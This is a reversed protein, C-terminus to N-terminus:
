GLVNEFRHTNGAVEEVVVIEGPRITRAQGDSATILADCELHVVDLRRPAAHWDLDYTVPMERFIIAAATTRSSTPDGTTQATWEVQQDRWHSGDQDDEYLRHIHM